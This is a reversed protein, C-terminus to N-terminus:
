RSAAGSTLVVVGGAREVPAPVPEVGVPRNESLRALPQLALPRQDEFDAGVLQRVDLLEHHLRPEGIDGEFFVERTKIAHKDTVM